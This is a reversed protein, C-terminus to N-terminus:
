IFFIIVSCDLDYGSISKDIEDNIYQELLKDEPINEDILNELIKNRLQDLLEKDSFIEYDSINNVKFPASSVDFADILSVKKM